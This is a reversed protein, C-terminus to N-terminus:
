LFELFAWLGRRILYEQDKENRYAEREFSINLYALYHGRFQALRILYEVFYWVYFLLIGMELQQRLHICEHNLLVPGPNKKKLLIFPFFAMAEVWLFSVNLLFGKFRM